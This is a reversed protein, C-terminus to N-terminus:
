KITDDARESGLKRCIVYYAETLNICNIRLEIPENNAREHLQRVREGKPEGAPIGAVFM